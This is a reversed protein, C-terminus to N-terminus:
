VVFHHSWKNKKQWKFFMFVKRSLKGPSPSTNYNTLTVKDPASPSGSPQCGGYLSSGVSLEVTLLLLPPPRQCVNAALWIRPGINRSTESKRESQMGTSEQSWAYMDSIFFPPTLCPARNEAASASGVVCAGYTLACSTFLALTQSHM